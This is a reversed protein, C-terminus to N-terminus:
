RQPKIKQKAKRYADLSNVLFDVEDIELNQPAFQLESVGLLYDVTVNFYSAIHLLTTFDPERDNEYGSYTSKNIGLNLALEEQTMGKSNRLQRLRERFM